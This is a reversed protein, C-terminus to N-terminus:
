VVDSVAVCPQKRKGSASSVPASPSDPLEDLLKVLEDPTVTFNLDDLINEDIVVLQHPESGEMTKDDTEEAQAVEQQVTGQPHQAQCQEEEMRDQPECKVDKQMVVKSQLEAVQMLLNEIQADKEVIQADKEIQVETLKTQLKVNDRRAV